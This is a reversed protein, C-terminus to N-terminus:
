NLSQALQGLADTAAIHTQATAVWAGMAEQGEAPLKAIEALADALQGADTLAGARSLVADPDDGEQPKLSRVGTQAILFAGVKDMAGDGATAKRSVSLADRAAPEFDAKLTEISVVDATLAEPVTVGAEQLATLAAQKEVGTEIAVGLQAIATKARSNAADKEADSRLKAAEAEAGSIRAAAEEAAADIQAKAAASSDRGEDILAKMQAIEGQVQQMAAAAAPDSQLARDGLAAMQNEVTAVQAGLAEIKANAELLAAELPAIDVTTSPAPLAAIADNLSTLRAAQDAITAEIATTDVQPAPQTTEPLYQAPIHPLAYIAAGAGLGAAVVGGLVVPFFGTKKVVTKVPAPVPRQAPEEIIPEPEIVTEDVPESLAVPDDTSETIEVELEQSPDASDTAKAEGAEVEVTETEVPDIVAEVIEDASTKHTTPKAM